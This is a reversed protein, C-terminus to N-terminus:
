EAPEIRTVYVVRWSGSVTDLAFHERVRESPYSARVSGDPNTESYANEDFSVDAEAWEASRETVTVDRLEWAAGQLGGRQYMSRITAIFNRCNCSGSTAWEFRSTDGTSLAHNAGDFYIKVLNQVESDPSDVLQPSVELPTASTESSSDATPSRTEQQLASNDQAADDASMRSNVAPLSSASEASGCAALGGASVALLLALAKTHVM